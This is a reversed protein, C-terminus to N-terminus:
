PKKQLRKVIEQSLQNNQRFAFILLLIILLLDLNYLSNLILIVYLGTSSYVTMTFFHRYPVIKFRAKLMWSSILIFFMFLVFGSLFDIAIMTPAWISQYSLIYDDVATFIQTEFARKDTTQLSFDLNTLDGEIATLLEHYIVQENFLFYLSDGQVVINYQKTYNEPVLEDRTEIYFDIVQDDYLLMTKDEDCYVETDNIGCDPDLTEFNSAIATKSAESLGDYTIVDIVTRTSLLATFFIVYLFVWLLHDKRYDLLKRPNVISNLFREYM